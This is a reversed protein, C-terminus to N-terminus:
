EIISVKGFYTHIGAWDPPASSFCVPYNFVFYDHDHIITHSEFLKGIDHENIGNKLLECSKNLDNKIQENQLVIIFENLQELVKSFGGDSEVITDPSFPEKHPGAETFNPWYPSNTDKLLSVSDLLLSEIKSHLYGFNTKIYNQSDKSVGKLASSQAINCKDTSPLELESKHLYYKTNTYALINRYASESIKYKKSLDKKHIIVIPSAIMDFTITTDGIFKITCNPHSPNISANSNSNDEQWSTNFFLESFDRIKNDNNISLISPNDSDSFYNTVIIEKVNNPFFDNFIESLSSIQDDNERIANQYAIVNEDTHNEFLNLFQLTIIFSIVCVLIIILIIFLIKKNEQM